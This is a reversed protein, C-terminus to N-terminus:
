QNTTDFASRQIARVTDFDLHVVQPPTGITVPVVYELDSFYTNSISYIAFFVARWRGNQVDTASLQAGGHPASPAKPAGSPAASPAGAFKEQLPLEYEMMM